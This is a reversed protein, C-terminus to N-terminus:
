PTTECVHSKSACYSLVGLFQHQEELCQVFIQKIQKIIYRSKVKGKCCVFHFLTFRGQSFFRKNIHIPKSSALISDCERVCETGNANHLALEDFQFYFHMAEQFSHGPHIFGVPEVCLRLTNSTHEQKECSHTISVTGHEAAQKAYSKHM